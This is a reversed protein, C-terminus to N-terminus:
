WRKERKEEERGQREESKKVELLRIYANKLTCVSLALPHLSLHGVPHATSIWNDTRRQPLKAEGGSQLFAAEVVVLVQTHTQQAAWMTRLAWRKRAKKSAIM